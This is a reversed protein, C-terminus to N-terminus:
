HKLQRTAAGVTQHILVAITMPGVGGPVPTILSANRCAADFDVDGVNGENYGADVVVAGPKIWDGRVFRPKGLAAIVLDAERVIDPLNQTHSHCLTVTAHDNILLSSLPRGLIPSRGIVVAHMGKIPVQYHRLLRMIGVPTCSRLGPMGLVMQGVASSSVSDVDKEAPIAEFAERKKIPPPVPHQLLIGHVRDDSGLERVKEVLTETTTSTGLVLTTSIVGADRCRLSKMRIYTESSSNNGIMITALNPQVGTDAHLKRAATTAESLIKAALERGLMLKCPSSSSPLSM